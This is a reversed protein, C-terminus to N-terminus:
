LRPSRAAPIRGPAAQRVNAPYRRSPAISLIGSPPSPADNARGLHRDHFQGPRLHSRGGLAGASGAREGRRSARQDAAGAARLAAGDDAHPRAARAAGPWHAFVRHARAAPGRSRARLAGPLDSRPQHADHSREPLRARASARNAGSEVCAGVAPGPAPWASAGALAGDPRPGACRTAHRDRGGAPGACVAPAARAVGAQSTPVVRPATPTGSRPPRAITWRAVARRPMGGCSARSRRPRGVSSGRARARVSCGRARLLALQEREAFALYRGSLPPVSRALHTPPMGGARRFWRTGVVWSVRAAAVAAEPYLGRTIAAWFRVRDERRGVPPRGPSRLAKRTSRASKRIGTRTM